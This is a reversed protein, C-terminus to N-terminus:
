FSYGLALTTGIILHPVGPVMTELSNYGIDLGLDLFLGSDFFAQWGLGTFASFSFAVLENKKTQSEVERPYLYPISGSAVDGLSVVTDAAKEPLYIDSYVAMGFGLGFKLYLGNYDTLGKGLLLVKSALDIKFYSNFFNKQEKDYIRKKWQSKEIKPSDNYFRDSDAYYKNDETYFPNPIIEPQYTGKLILSAYRDLNFQAEISFDPSIERSKFSGIAINEVKKALMFSRLVPSLINTSISFRKDEREFSASDKEINEAVELSTETPEEAEVSVTDAGDQSFITVPIFLFLILIKKIKM